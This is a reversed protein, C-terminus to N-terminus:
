SKRALVMQEAGHVVEAASSIEMEALERFSSNKIVNKVIGNVIFNDDQNIYIPLFNETSESVLAIQGEKENVLFKKINACGNIVSLVYDGNRPNKDNPDVIVYDGDEISYKGGIRAKNMSKGSARIAFVKKAKGVMSKSVKLYGELNEEALIDHGPYRSRITGVILKECAQDVETVLDTEGKYRIDLTGGYHAKQLEGAARAAAVATELYEDM